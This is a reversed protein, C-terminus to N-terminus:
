EGDVHDQIGGIKEELVALARLINELQNDPVVVGIVSNFICGLIFVTAMERMDLLRTHAM